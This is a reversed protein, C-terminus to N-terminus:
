IQDDPIKFFRYSTLPSPKSAESRYMQGAQTDKMILSAPGIWNAPGININNSITANVGIFSHHGIRCHGSIVVHSALFVHDEIISHHGIHNGSWVIVDNGITVFSQIVNNEFIFCNDGIRASKAVFAYPSVYSVLKYGQDLMENCIRQRARNIERYTLAVFADYRSPPFLTRINELPLIPKGLLHSNKLFAKHVLFAAVDYGADIFYEHAIEAFSSDGIIVIPKM